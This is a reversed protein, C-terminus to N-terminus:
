LVELAKIAINRNERSIYTTTTQLLDLINQINKKKHALKIKDLRLKINREMKYEEDEQINM